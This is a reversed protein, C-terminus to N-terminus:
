ERLRMSFIGSFSAGEKEGLGFCVLDAARHKHHFKDMKQRIEDLGTNSWYEVHIFLLHLFILKSNFKPGSKNSM